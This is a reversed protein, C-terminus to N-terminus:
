QLRRLRHLQLRHDRHEWGADCGLEDAARARRLHLQIARAGAGHRWDRWQLERRDSTWGRRQGRGHQRLQLHRVRRQRQQQTNRWLQRNLGDYGAYFTGSAGRADVTQTVNGNADYSYTENGRDPDSLSTKQGLKNYGYTTTHGQPDTISALNGAGDYKSSTVSYSAIGSGQPNQSTGTFRQAYATHGLADTYSAIQHLNADISLTQLYPEGDSSPLGSTSSAVVPLYTTCSTHHM